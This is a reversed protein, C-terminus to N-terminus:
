LRAVEVEVDAREPSSRRLRVYAAVTGAVLVGTILPGAEGATELFYSRVAEPYWDPTGLVGLLVPGFVVLFWVAPVASILPQVQAALVVVVLIVGFALLLWFAGSLAGESEAASPSRLASRLAQQGERLLWALVAASVVGIAAGIWPSIRWRRTM